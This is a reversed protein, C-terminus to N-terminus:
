LLSIQQANKTRKEKYTWLSPSIIEMGVLTRQNSQSNKQWHSVNTLIHIEPFQIYM